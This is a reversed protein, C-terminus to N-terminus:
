LSKKYKRYEDWLKERLEPDPEKMAAERLQRAIVDDGETSALDEPVVSESDVGKLDQGERAPGTNTNRKGPRERKATRLPEEMEGEDGFPNQEAADGAPIPGSGERNDANRVAENEDLLIKDFDAFRADLERELRATNEAGAGVGVPSDSEPDGAAPPEPSERGFVELADALIEDDSRNDPPAATGLRGDSDGGLPNGLPNGDPSGMPSGLPSGTPSGVPSTGVTPTSVCAALLAVIAITVAPAALAATLRRATNTNM